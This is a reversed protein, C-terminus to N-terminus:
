TEWYSSLYWVTKGKTKIKYKKCFAMLDEVEKPTAMLKLPSFVEPFGRSATLCSEKVALIWVPASDSCANVLEVPFPNKKDWKEQSDFYEDVKGEAPEKGDLYNGNKDFIEFPPKYGNVKRWWVEWDGSEDWPLETEDDIMVGFCITGDTSSSM